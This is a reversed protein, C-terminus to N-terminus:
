ENTKGKKNTDKFFEKAKDDLFKMRERGKPLKKRLNKMETLFEGIGNPLCSQLFRRLYKAVAPSAGSTSVSIILDGEKIYSPFIFDCYEIVDVTNCLIRKEKAELYIEKQKEIDDIAAIVIDFGDMDDTEYKKKISKLSYIKVISIIEECLNDAIITINETFDLLHELKDQAIKGAGVILVKKGDLKIYAPFYSM